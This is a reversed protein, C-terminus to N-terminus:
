LLDLATLKTLFENISLDIADVHMFYKIVILLEKSSLEVLNCPRLIRLSSFFLNM